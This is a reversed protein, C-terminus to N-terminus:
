ETIKFKRLVSDVKKKNICELKSSKYSKSSSNSACGFCSSYNINRYKRYTETSSKEDYKKNSKKVYRMILNYTPILVIYSMVIVALLSVVKKVDFDVKLTSVFWDLNFIKRIKQLIYNM